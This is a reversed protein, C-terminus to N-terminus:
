RVCLMCNYSQKGVTETVPFLQQNKQRKTQPENAQKYNTKFLVTATESVRLFLGVSM